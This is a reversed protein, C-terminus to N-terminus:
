SNVDFYLLLHVFTERESYRKCTLSLLWEFLNMCGLDFCLQHEFLINDVIKFVFFDSLCVIKDKKSQVIWYLIINYSPMQEWILLFIDIEYNRFLGKQSIVDYIDWFM